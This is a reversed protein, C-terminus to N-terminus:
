VLIHLIKDNRCLVVLDMIRAVTSLILTFNNQGELFKKVPVAIITVAQVSNKKNFRGIYKINLHFFSKKCSITLSVAEKKNTMNFQNTTEANLM